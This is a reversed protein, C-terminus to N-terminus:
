LMMMVLVLRVCSSVISFRGVLVMSFWGKLRNCVMKVGLLRCVSYM